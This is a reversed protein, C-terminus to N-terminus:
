CTDRVVDAVMTRHCRKDGTCYCVLVIEEGRKMRAIISKIALQAEDDHQLHQRFRQEYNVSEMARNHAISPQTGESELQEKEHLWQYFLDDPPSLREDTEDVVEDIDNTDSAVVSIYTTDSGDNTFSSLRSQSSARDRRAARLSMHDISGAVSQGDSHETM